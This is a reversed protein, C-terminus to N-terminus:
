KRWKVKVCWTCRKCLEADHRNMLATIRRMDRDKICVATSPPYVAQRIGKTDEVPRHLSPLTCAFEDSSRYIIELPSHLQNWSGEDWWPSTAQHCNMVGKPGKREKGKSYMQGCVRMNWETCYGRFTWGWALCWKGQCQAPFDELGLQHRPHVLRAWLQCPYVGGNPLAGEGEAWSVRDLLPYLCPVCVQCLAFWSLQSAVTSTIKLIVHKLNSACVLFKINLKHVGTPERLALWLLTGCIIVTITSIYPWQRHICAVISKM